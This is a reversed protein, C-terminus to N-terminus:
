GDKYIWLPNDDIWIDPHININELFEKKAKRETFIVRCYKGISNIVEDSETEEYRMTVCIVKHNRRFSDKIFSDWLNPDKTYTMDYDLAIIM